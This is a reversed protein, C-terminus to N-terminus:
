LRQHGLGTSAPAHNTCAAYAAATSVGATVLAILVVTLLQELGFAGVSCLDNSKDAADNCDAQEDPTHGLSILM